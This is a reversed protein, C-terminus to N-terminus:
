TRLNISVLKPKLATSAFQHCTFVRRFISTSGTDLTLNLIVMWRSKVTPMPLISRSLRTTSVLKFNFGDGVGIRPTSTSFSVGKFANTTSQVDSPTLDTKARLSGQSVADTLNAQTTELDTQGNERTIATVKRLFGNPTVGTPGGVMVDGVKLNALAPSDSSFKMTGHGNKDVQSASLATLTSADAVKTTQPIITQTSPDPAPNAPCATLMVALALISPLFKHM